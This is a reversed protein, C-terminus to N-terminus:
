AATRAKRHEEGRYRSPRGDIGCLKWLVNSIPNRLGLEEALMRVDGFYDALIEQSRPSAFFAEKMVHAPIGFKKAMVPPPTVIAGCLMRMILPYAISTVLKGFASQERVHERLFQHAFSIHRAEEAIHIEMIRRLVPPMDEGDRVVNKQHHDIPEEGALVGIFFLQPVVAALGWLPATLKHIRRMGPVDAGTRNVLEQFMQIHNCEETMEHMCYRFEPSGNPLTMVYQQMGRILVSEFELGVKAGNAQRWLGIAVKKELPQAQYWPHAGLPDHTPSLVWRPDTPDIRFDPSDWDIDVYPDFHRNVSGESLTQLLQRYEDKSLDALDPLDPVAYVAPQATRQTSPAM